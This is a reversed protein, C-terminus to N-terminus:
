VNRTLFDKMLGIARDTNPRPQQAFAHPMGPFYTIDVAGGKERYTEVFREPITLPINDDSDGQLILMPPLARYDGRDLSQQPSGEQMAAEDPFYTESPEMLRAISAEKAYLYRANSFTPQWRGDVLMTNWGIHDVHMHTCLVTDISERAFGVSALQDLFDGKRLNWDEVFRDQKDNGLCTDVIIKRGESEILLAHISLLMRGDDDVFHPKLWPIGALTDRDLQDFLFRPSIPWVTDVVRTVTVDGITWKLM